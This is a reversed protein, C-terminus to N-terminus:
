KAKARGYFDRYKKNISDTAVVLGVDITNFKLDIFAGDSVKAGMRLYAKLLSPMENMAVKYNLKDLPIINMDVYGKKAARFGWTKPAKFKENLLTLASGFDMANNGHFSAVGFMLNINRNIIYDALGLWLFHIAVNGRYNKEVCARSIELSNDTESILKDLNYETASYFGLTQEAVEREMLRMTGIIKPQDCLSKSRKDILILHDCYRDFKDREIAKAVNKQSVKAGFEEVFVRYRLQQAALVEAQNITLRVEFQNDNIVRM